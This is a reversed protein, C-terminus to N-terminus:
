TKRRDLFKTLMIEIEKSTILDIDNAFRLRSLMEGDLNIGKADCELQKFAHELVTTFLKPCVTKGQRIGRKIKICSTNKLLRVIITTINYINAILRSYRYDVHCEELEKIVM